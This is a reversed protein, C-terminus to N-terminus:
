RQFEMVIGFPPWMIVTLPKEDEVGDLVDKSRETELLTMTDFECGVGVDVGVAVSVAVGVEVAVPVLVAVGVAVVFAVWVAVAVAVTVAVAVGVEVAVPVLVAVADGFGVGVAVGVEVGFGFVKVVESEKNFVPVAADTFYLAGVSFPVTATTVDEAFGLL